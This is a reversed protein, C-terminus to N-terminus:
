RTPALEKSTKLSSWSYLALALWISGFTILHGTTFPENFILVATAFQCTPNIYQLLGLTSLRVRNAGVAFMVMPLATIPGCLILLATTEISAAFGGSNHQLAFVAYGLALPVLLLTEGFFGSMAGQKSFKRLAGYLGFSIALGLSIWPFKGLGAVMYGVGLGAIVVSLAQIPKLKEGFFLRGFIIAVFPMIFYGLSAELAQNSNVAYIFICWNVAIAAGSLFFISLTKRSRLAEIAFVFRRRYVLIVSIAICAWIVRHSLIELADIGQLTRFFLPFTGWAVYASIAALVGHRADTQASM